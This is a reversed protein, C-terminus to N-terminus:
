NSHYYFGEVRLVVVLKKAGKMSMYSISQSAAEELLMVAQNALSISNESNPNDSVEINFENANDGERRIQLSDVKIAFCLKEVM